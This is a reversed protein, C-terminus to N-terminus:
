SVGEPPQEGAIRAIAAKIAVLGQGPDDISVEIRREPFTHRYLPDYYHIMLRQVLAEWAGAQLLELLEAVTQRGLREKLAQIPRIFESRLHDRAPYDALINRVRADLPADIWLSTETQLSQYVRLPLALRGIHRSEGEALAYSGPALERLADWLLAEFMRQPPQPPLGLHGFASGRHNAMGELDLVPYGADALQQLLTTKGVGTLGRLVILRGWSGHEFFDRVHGRFAKHGGALQRAPIGALELFQTLARSRMGGRWCFIVAPPSGPARAAAIREVLEPIKPAVLEVGRRRAAQKGTQKYLTGIEAREADDLIPVNLSGPITAEAYEAPSRADVLLAGRDRLALAKELTIILDSM